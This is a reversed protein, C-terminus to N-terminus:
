HIVNWCWIGPKSIDEDQCNYQGVIDCYGTDWCFCCWEADDKLCTAPGCNNAEADPAGLLIGALSTAGIFAAATFASRSGVKGEEGLIFRSVKCNVKQHLHSRM